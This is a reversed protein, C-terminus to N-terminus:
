IQTGAAFQYNKRENRPVGKFGYTPTNRHCPVCLTRGNSLEFRLESYFAFPKIHDANLYGGIEGCEQCTYLDREFVKTRWEEYELSERIKKYIPTIGGKWNPNNEGRMEYNPIGKNWGHGLEFGKLNKPAKSLKLKTEQSVIRSKSNCSYSCYKAVIQWYKKSM